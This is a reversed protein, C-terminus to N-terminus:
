DQNKPFLINIKQFPLSKCKMSFDMFGSEHHTKPFNFEQTWHLCIKSIILVGLFFKLFLIKIKKPSEVQIIPNWWLCKMSFDMLGSECPFKLFNLEQTWPKLCAKKPPSLQYAILMGLFSFREKKSFQRLKKSKWSSHNSEIM